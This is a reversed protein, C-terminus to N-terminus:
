PEIVSFGQIMEDFEARSRSLAPADGGRDVHLFDYVCNEKKMVVVVFHRRVGDLRADVETRLAKRGDL